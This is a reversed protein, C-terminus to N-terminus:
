LADPTGKKSRSKRNRGIHDTLEDACKGVVFGISIQDVSFEKNKEACVDDAPREQEAYYRQLWLLKNYNVESIRILVTKARAM